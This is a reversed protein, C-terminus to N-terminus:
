QAKVAMTLGSQSSVGGINLLVPVASGPNVGAPVTVNVQLLGYIEDPATGAYAINSANVMGISVTLPAVPHPLQNFNNAIGGDIGAPTTQGEGTGYITIVSGIAAPNNPGNLSGDSNVIVGQGSGDALSLIGPATATVPIRLIGGPVGNYWPQVFALTGVQSALEYPAVANIQTASVYTLACAVGNVLVQVGGVNNAILGTNSDIQALSDATPGLGTGKLTFILGPSIAPITIADLGAGNLFVSAAPGTQSFDFRTVYADGLTQTYGTNFQGGFTTQVASPTTPTDTSTVWGVVPVINGTSDLALATMMTYLTGGLYTSYLLGASGSQTTDIRAVFGYQSIGSSTLYGAWCCEFANSTTPLDISDTQGTITVRGASDAVIATITDDYSGGFYTSYVLQAKGTASPNLKTVFGDGSYEGLLDSYTGRLAGSSVPFASSSTGGAVYINGSPDLAISQAASAQDSGGLYTCYLLGATPSIEAVIVAQMGPYQAQYAGPTTPLGASTTYGAVYPNGAANLAVANFGTTSQGNFYTSYVLSGSSTVESLFGGESGHLSTQFAQGRVPFDLSTTSGTIWANGSADVAVGTADDYATGTLYSSYIMASGSSNFKAVFASPCYAMNGANGCSESKQPPTEFANVQPIIGYGSSNTLGVVVPNGSSDLAVANGQDAGPSGYLTSFILSAAGSASPNIKVLFVHWSQNLQSSITSVLANKTPFNPSSTLGTVYMNGQEDLAVGNAQDGLDGGLYTAYTLIPDIVLEASRDYRDVAFGAGRKGRLVYHGGITKAGQRIVPAHARVESGSLELILDGGSNKTVRRAGDFSIRIQSPDAGPRLVFDYELQEPNGYFVVDIGPWVERYRVRGFHPIKARWQAPDNGVFYNSIGQQPEEAEMAASRNAGEFRLKMYSTASKKSVALVAGEETLWLTGSNARALYKVTADTQGLNPEFAVPLSIKPSATAAATFVLICIGCQRFLGM